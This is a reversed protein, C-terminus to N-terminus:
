RHHARLKPTIKGATSEEEDCVMEIVGCASTVNSIRDILIIEGLARHTTFVDMVIPQTLEIVCLASGPMGGRRSLSVKLLMLSYSPCIRLAPESQWTERISRMVPRIRLLSAANTRISIGIHWMSRLALRTYAIRLRFCDFFFKGVLGNTTTLHTLTIGAAAWGGFYNIYTLAVKDNIWRGDEPVGHDCQHRFCGCVSRKMMQKEHRFAADDSMHGIFM